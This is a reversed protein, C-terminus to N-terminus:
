EEQAKEEVGEEVVEEEEEPVEEVEERRRIVICVVQDPPNLVKVGPPAEIDRVHISQGVEMESVDLTIEEPLDKPLCEVEIEHVFVEFLGGLKAGVPIGQTHVPVHTRLSKGEEIEYFDLHTIKGTLIDEQYDKVLVNYTKKDIKLKIIINESIVKFKTNFDHEDVAFSIPQNHGYMVSPIKSNRRLERTYGKSYQERIEGILTTKEM